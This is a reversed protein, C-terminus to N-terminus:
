NAQANHQAGDSGRARTQTEMLRSKMAVAGRRSHPL